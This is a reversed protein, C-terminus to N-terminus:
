ISGFQGFHAAALEFVALVDTQEESKTHHHGNNEHHRHHQRPRHRQVDHLGLEVVALHLDKVTRHPREVHKELLLDRLNGIILTKQIGRLRRCVRVLDDPLIGKHFPDQEIVDDHRVPIGDPRADTVAVQDDMGPADNGERQVAPVPHGGPPYVAHFAPFVLLIKGAHRQPEHAQQLAEACGAGQRVTVDV